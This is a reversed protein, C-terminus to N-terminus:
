SAILLDKKMETITLNHLEGVKLIQPTFVRLYDGSTGYSGNDDSQEIIVNKITGITNHLYLESKEQYLKKLFKFRIKKTKEDIHNKVYASLTNTRVSYRFIHYHSIPSEYLFEMMKNFHKETEGPFGVIIDAGIRIERKMNQIKTLINLIDRGEYNRKMSRLISDETHQLSLHMFPAICEHNDIFNLFEDNIENIDLSSLRIRGNFNDYIIKLIDVFNTNEYNYRSIHVGTLIIERIGSKEANRIDNIILETSRSIEKERYYPVTCYSCFNNCGTQILIDERSRLQVKSSIEMIESQPVFSINEGDKLYDPICGSLVIKKNPFKKKISNIYRRLQAEAKHTVVCGAILIYDADNISDMISYENDIYLSLLRKSLHQNLRCGNSKLFIKM